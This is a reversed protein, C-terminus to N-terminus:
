QEFDGMEDDDNSPEPDRVKDLTDPRKSAAKMIKEIVSMPCGCRKELEQTSRAGGPAGFRTLEDGVTSMMNSLKDDKVKVAMDMVKRGIEALKAAGPHDYSAEDMKGKHKQEGRKMAKKKDKHAGAGAKPANKAVYNRPKIEEAKM